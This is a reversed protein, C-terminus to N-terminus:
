WWILIHHCQCTALIMDECFINSKYPRFCWITSILPSTVSAPRVVFLLRVNFISSSLWHFSSASNRLKHTWNTSEAMLHETQVTNMNVQMEKEWWVEFSKHLPGNLFYNDSWCHGVFGSKVCLLEKELTSLTLLQTNDKFTKNNYLFHFYYHGVMWVEYKDRAGRATGTSFIKTM